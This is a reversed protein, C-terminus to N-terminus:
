FSTTFIRLKSNKVKEKVNEVGLEEYANNASVSLIIIFLYDVSKVYQCAGHLAYNLGKLQLNDAVGKHQQTVKQIAVHTKNWLRSLVM